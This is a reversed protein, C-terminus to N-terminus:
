KRITITANNWTKNIPSGDVLLDLVVTYESSDVLSNLGGKIMFNLLVEQFSPDLYFSYLFKNVEGARTVNLPKGSPLYINVFKNTYFIVQINHGKRNNVISIEITANDTLKIEKPTISYKVVSIENTSTEAVKKYFFSFINPFLAYAVVLLLAIILTM